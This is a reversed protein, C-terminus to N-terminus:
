IFALEEGTTRLLVFFRQSEESAPESHCFAKSNIELSFINKIKQWFDKLQNLFGEKLEAKEEGIGQQIATRRTKLWDGIGTLFKEKLWTIMKEVLEILFVFIKVFYVKVTQFVGGLPSATSSSSGIQALVVVQQSFLLFMVLFILIVKNNYM